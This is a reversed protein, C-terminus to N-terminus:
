LDANSFYRTRYPDLYSAAIHLPPGPRARPGQAVM